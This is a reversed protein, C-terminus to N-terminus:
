LKRTIKKIPHQPQKKKVHHEIEALLRSMVINLGNYLNKYEGSANIQEGPKIILDAKLEHKFNNIKQHQKLKIRLSEFGVKNQIKKIFNGLLKNVIDIESPELNGFGILEINNGLVANIEKPM